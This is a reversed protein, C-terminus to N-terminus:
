TKCCMEAMGRWFGARLGCLGCLVDFSDVQYDSAARNVLKLPYLLASETFNPLKTAGFSATASLRTVIDSESM